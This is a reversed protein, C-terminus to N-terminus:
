LVELNSVQSPAESGDEERRQLTVVVTQGKGPKGKRKWADYPMFLRTRDSLFIVIPNKKEDIYQIQATRTIKPIPLWSDNPESQLNYNMINAAGRTMDRNTAAGGGGPSLAGTVVNSPISVGLPAHSMYGTIEM